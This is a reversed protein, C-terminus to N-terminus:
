RFEEPLFNNEGGAYDDGNVVWGVDTDDGGTWVALTSDELEGGVGTGDGDGTAEGGTVEGVVDGAGELFWTENDDGVWTGISLSDLLSGVDVDWDDSEAVGVRWGLVDINSDWGVVLTTVGNTEDPPHKGTLDKTETSSKGAALSLPVDHGIQVEVTVWFGLLVLLGGILSLKWASVLDTSIGDSGTGSALPGSLSTNTTCESTGTSWSTYAAPIVLTTIPSGSGGVSLWFAPSGLVSSGNGWSLRTLPLNNRLVNVGFSFFCQM